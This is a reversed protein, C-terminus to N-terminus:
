PQAVIKQEAAIDATLLGNERMLAEIKKLSPLDLTSQARPVPMARIMAPDMRTYGNVLNVFADKGINTNVWDSGKALGRVFKKVLEPNKTVTETTAVYAAAQVGPLVVHFPWGVVEFDPNRQAVTLFPDIAFVADAQGAKLADLMQPFPVERYTVKDPDGGTAKVWARAFIWQVGNRANVAITKGELQKGGHIQDAKRGLMGAQEPPEAPNGSGGAVIRIDLGQQLALLITPTNSYAIDYAGAVMGPIGIAGGQQNTETTVDLGEDKFYGEQVAAYFSAMDLIPLVSVRLKAPQANGPSPATALLAAVAVLAALRFLSALRAKM